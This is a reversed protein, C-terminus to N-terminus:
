GVNKLKYLLSMLESTKSKGNKFKTIWTQSASPRCKQRNKDGPCPICQKITLTKIEKNRQGSNIEGPQHINLDAQEQKVTVRTLSTNMVM